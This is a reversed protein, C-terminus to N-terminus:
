WIPNGGGLYASSFVFCNDGITVGKNRWYKIPNKKKRYREIVWKIM